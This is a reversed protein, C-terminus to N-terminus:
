AVSRARLPHAADLVGRCRSAVTLARARAGEPPKPSPYFAFAHKKLWSQYTAYNVNVSTLYAPYCSRGGSRETLNTSDSYVQLALMVGGLRSVAAAQERWLAASSPHEVRAEKEWTLEEETPCWRRGYQPAAFRSVLALAFSLAPKYELVAAPLDGDWGPVDYTFVKQQFIEGRAAAVKRLETDRKYATDVGLDSFRLGANEVDRILKTLTNHDGSRAAPRAIPARTLRDPGVPPPWPCPLGQPRTRPRARARACKSLGANNNACAAWSLYRLKLQERLQAAGTPQPSPWPAWADDDGGGGAFSGSLSPPSHLGGGAAGDDHAPDVRSAPWRVAATNHVAGLAARLAAAEPAAQACAGVHRQLGGPGGGVFQLCHPCQSGAAAVVAAGPLVLQALVAFLRAHAM